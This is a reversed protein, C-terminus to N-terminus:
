GGPAASQGRADRGSRVLGVIADQVEIDSAKSKTLHRTPGLVLRDRDRATLDRGTYVLLPIDAFDPEHRLRDVVQQGDGDPLGLDLVLVHPRAEELAAFAERVSTATRVVLGRGALQRGLVALIGEDDDVLLVTKPATPVRGSSFLRSKAALPVRFWFTSGKGVESLVGIAGGHQEVIEKCIALGLGTGGKQRADGAEVQRYREFVASQMSAPIGRGSDTVRFEAWGGAEAVSLVITSGRASFKVANSLLNVLVQVLRDGDGRLDLAGARTELAIGAQGAFDRVWEAARM